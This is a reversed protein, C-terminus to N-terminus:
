PSTSAVGVRHSCGCTSAQVERGPSYLHFYVAVLVPVFVVANYVLHLEGRPIVLQLITTPESSGFLIKNVTTQALLM